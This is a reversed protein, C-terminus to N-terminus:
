ASGAAAALRDMLPEGDFTAHDDVLKTEIDSFYSDLVTEREHKLPSPCYCTETWRVTGDGAIRARDMAAAIGGGDPRQAAITGDSLRRHFEASRDENLRATVSYIMDTGKRARVRWLLGFARRRRMAGGGNAEGRTRRATVRGGRGTAM